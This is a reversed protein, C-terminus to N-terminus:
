DISVWVNPGLCALGSLTHGTTYTAPLRQGAPDIRQIIGAAGEAVWVGVSDTAVATPVSQLPWNGLPNGSPDLRWLRDPDVTLVWVSGLGSAISVARGDLQVTISRGTGTDTRAVGGTRGTAV